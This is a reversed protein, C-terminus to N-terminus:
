SPIDIQGISTGDYVDINHAIADLREQAKNTEKRENFSKIDDRVNKIPNPIEIKEGKTAQQGVKAGIFFCATNLVGIAIILMIISWEM